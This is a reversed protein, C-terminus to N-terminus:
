LQTIRNIDDRFGGLVRSIDNLYVKFCFDYLDGTKEINHKISVGLNDNKQSYVLGTEQNMFDKDFNNIDNKQSNIHPPSNKNIWVMYLRNHKNSNYLFWNTYFGSGYDYLLSFAGGKQCVRLYENRSIFIKRFDRQLLHIKEPAEYLCNCDNKTLLSNEVPHTSNDFSAFMQLDHKNQELQTEIIKEFLDIMKQQIDFETNNSM